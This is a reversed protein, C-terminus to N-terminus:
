YYYYYYYYYYYCYCRHITTGPNLNRHSISATRNCYVLSRGISSVNNCIKEIAMDEGEYFILAWDVTGNTTSISSTTNKINEIMPSNEFLSASIFSVCLLYSRNTSVLAKYKDYNVKAVQFQPALAARWIMITPTNIDTKREYLLHNNVHLISSNWGVVPWTVNIYWICSSLIHDNPYYYISSSLFQGFSKVTIESTNSISTSIYMFNGIDSKYLGLHLCKYISVKIYETKVGNSDVELLTINGHANITNTIPYVTFTSNSSSTSSSSSSSSTSSSSSSTGGGGGGGGSSSGGDSSSSSSSSSSSIGGSSSSSMSINFSVICHNISSSYIYSSAIYKKSNSNSNLSEKDYITVTNHSTIHISIIKDTNFNRYNGNQLCVHHHHHHHNSNVNVHYLSLLILILLLLEISINM